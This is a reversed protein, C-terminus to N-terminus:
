KLPLSSARTECLPLSPPAPTNGSHQRARPRLLVSRTHSKMVRVAVKLDLNQHGQKTTSSVSARDPPIVQDRPETPCPRSYFTHQFGRPKRPDGSPQVSPTGRPGARPPPLASSWGEERRSRTEGEEKDLSVAQRFELGKWFEAPSPLFMGGINEM